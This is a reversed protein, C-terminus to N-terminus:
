CVELRIARSAINEDMLDFKRTIGAKNIYIADRVSTTGSEFNNFRWIDVTGDVETYSITSDCGFFNLGFLGRNGQAHPVFKHTKIFDM